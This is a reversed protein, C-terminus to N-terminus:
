MMLSPAEENCIEDEVTLQEPSRDQETVRETQELIEQYVRLTDCCGTQFDYKQLTEYFPVQVQQNKMQFIKLNSYGNQELFKRPVAKGDVLYRTVTKLQMDRLTDFLDGSPNRSLNTQLAYTSIGLHESLDRLKKYPKGQMICRPIYNLQYDKSLGAMEKFRIFVDAMELFSLPSRRLQERVCSVSIGYERCLSVQSSYTKGRYEVESGWAIKRIPKTLAREMDFGIRLREYVNAPQISFEACLEAIGTYTKGLFCIPETSLLKLVTDELTLGQALRGAIADVGVGYAQAIEAYSTFTRGWLVYPQKSLSQRSKEVAAEIDECRNVNHSLINYPIELERALDGLSPYLCGKFIVKREMSQIPTKVADEITWGYQLRTELRGYDLNQERALAMLSPYRKGEYIIEKSQDGVPTEVAQEVSWGHSLRYKMTSVPVGAADALSRISDYKEGKYELKRKPM